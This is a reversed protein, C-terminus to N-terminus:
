EKKGGTLATLQAELKDIEEIEATTPARPIALTKLETLRNRISLIQLTKATEDAAATFGDDSM